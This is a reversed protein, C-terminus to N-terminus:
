AVSISEIHTHRLLIERALKLNKGERGIAKAKNAPDVNVTAHIKNGRDEIEVGKVDHMHFINGVMKEPKDSYEVIQIDKKLTDRVHKANDGKKGVALGIQGNEVVFVLKDHAFFCDRVKAKTMKEFHAIYGLTESTFTLASSM